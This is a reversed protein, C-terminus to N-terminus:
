TQESDVLKVIYRGAYAEVKADVGWQEGDRLRKAVRYAGGRSMPLAENAQTSYTPEAYQQWWGQYYVKASRHAKTEIWAVVFKGTSALM